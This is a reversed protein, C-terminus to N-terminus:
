TRGLDSTKGRFTLLERGSLAKAEVFEAGNSVMFERIQRQGAIPHGAKLTHGIAPVINADGSYNILHIEKAAGCLWAM